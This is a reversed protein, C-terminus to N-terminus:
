EIEFYRSASALEQNDESAAQVTWLYTREGTLRQRVKLPLRVLTEAVSAQYIISLEDDILTFLYIDTGETETWRFVEPARKLKEAPILLRLESGGGARLIPGSAQHRFFLFAGAAIILLAAAAAFAGLRPRSVPHFNRKNSVARAQKRAWRKLQTAEGASLIAKPIHDGKALLRSEIEALTEFKLRCSPCSSVHSLLRRRSDVPLEGMMSKVLTENEPCERNTLANM